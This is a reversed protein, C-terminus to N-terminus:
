TRKTFKGKKQSKKSFTISGSRRKEEWQLQKQSSKDKNFVANSTGQGKVKGTEELLEAFDDAAAFLSSMDLIHSFSNTYSIIIMIKKCIKHYKGTSHKLKKAFGREDLSPDRKSKKSKPPLLDDDGEDSEGELMEEEDSMDESMGSGEFDDEGNLDDDENFDISGDEDDSVDSGEFDANGEEDEMDDDWDADIDEGEEEASKKKGKTKKVKIDSMGPDGGLDKLFDLEEADSVDGAQSRKKSKKGFFGDLYEEFEDDDVDGTRVNEEDDDDDEESKKTKHILEAQKRKHELYNFIFMEDETCNSKTLSKVPMGRAGHSTYAKHTVTQSDATQDM